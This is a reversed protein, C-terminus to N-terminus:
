EGKPATSYAKKLWLACLSPVFYVFNSDYTKSRQSRQTFAKLGKHNITKSM